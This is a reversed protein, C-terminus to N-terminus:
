GVSQGVSYLDLQNVSQCVAWSYFPLQLNSFSTNTGPHALYKEFNCISFEFVFNHQSVERLFQAAFEFVVNEQSKRGFVFQVAPNRQFLDHQGCLGLVIFM